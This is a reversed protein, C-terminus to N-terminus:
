RRGGPIRLGLTCPIHQGAITEALMAQAYESIGCRSQHDSFSQYISQRRTSRAANAREFFRLATRSNHQAAETKM